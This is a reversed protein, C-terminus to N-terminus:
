CAVSIQASLKSSTLTQLKPFSINGISVNVLAFYGSSVFTYFPWQFTGMM